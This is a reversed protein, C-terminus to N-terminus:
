HRGHIAAPDILHDWPDGAMAEPVAWSRVSHGGRHIAQRDGSVLPHWEPLPRGQAVRLYACSEPLWTITRVLEPTLSVCDPVHLQRNAYDTCRCSDCDLLRCAIGTFHLEGDEETELKHLCCKGCGDCLAEWEAEDLEELRKSEWFRVTDAGTTFACVMLGTGGSTLPM